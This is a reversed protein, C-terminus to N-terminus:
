SEKTSLYTELAAVAAICIRHSEEVGPFRCGPDGFGKADLRLALLRWASPNDRALAITRRLSAHDNATCRRMLNRMAKRYVDLAPFPPEPDRTHLEAVKAMTTEKAIL